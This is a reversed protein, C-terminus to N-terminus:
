EAFVVLFVGIYNFWNLKNSKETLLFMCWATPCRVDWYSITLFSKSYIQSKTPHHQVCDLFISIQKPNPTRLFCLSNESQNDGYIKNLFLVSSTSIVSYKTFFLNLFFFAAGWILWFLTKSRIKHTGCHGQNQRCLFNHLPRKQRMEDHNCFM